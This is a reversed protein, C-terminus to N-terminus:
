SYQEPSQREFTAQIKKKISNNEEVTVLYMM